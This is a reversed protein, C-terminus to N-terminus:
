LSQVASAALWLTPTLPRPVPLVRPRGQVGMAVMESPPCCNNPNTRHIAASPLARPLDLALCADRAAAEPGGPCVIPGTHPHGKHWVGPSFTDQPRHTHRPM